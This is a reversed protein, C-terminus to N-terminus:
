FLLRFILLVTLKRAPVGCLALLYDAAVPALLCHTVVIAPLVLGPPDTLFSFLTNKKDM